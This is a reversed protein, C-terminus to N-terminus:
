LVRLVFIIEALSSYRPRTRHVGAANGNEGVAIRPYKSELHIVVIIGWYVQPITSKGHSKSWCRWFNPPQQSRKQTPASYRQSRPLNEAGHVPSQPASTGNWPRVAIRRQKAIRPYVEKTLLLPTGPHAQLIELADLILHFGRYNPTIGLWLLLDCTM